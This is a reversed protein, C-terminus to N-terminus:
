STPPGTHSPPQVPAVAQPPAPMARTAAGTVDDLSQLGKEFDPGVTKDMDMFICMAKGIFNNQGSMTWIVHTGNGSPSLDFQTTITAAFPKIFELKITVNQPSRADTITMQGEGVKDNGSWHYVAGPGSPSGSVERKMAPDLKEWPSWDPWKHFDVLFPYVVEPPAALTKERSIRFDAPRTAVYGAFGAVVLLLVLAIKKLM